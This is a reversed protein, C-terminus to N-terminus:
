CTASSAQGRALVVRAVKSVSAQVGIVSTEVSEGPLGGFASVCPAPTALLYTGQAHVGQASSLSVRAEQKLRDRFTFDKDFCAKSDDIIM